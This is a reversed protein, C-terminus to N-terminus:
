FRTENRRKGKQSRHLAVAQAARMVEITPELTPSPHVPDLTQYSDVEKTMNSEGNGSLTEDSTGLGSDSEEGTSVGSDERQHLTPIHSSPSLIRGLDLEKVWEELEAAEVEETYEEVLDTMEVLAEAEEQMTAALEGLGMLMEAEEQVRGQESMITNIIGLVDQLLATLTAVPANSGQPQRIPFMFPPPCALSPTSAPHEEQGPFKFVDKSSTEITSLAEETPLRVSVQSWHAEKLLEMQQYHEPPLHRTAPVALPYVMMDRDPLEFPRPTVRSETLPYADTIRSYDNVEGDYSSFFIPVEEEFVNSLPRQKPLFQNNNNHRFPSASKDAKWM